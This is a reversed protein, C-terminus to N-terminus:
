GPDIAARFRALTADIGSLFAEASEVPLLAKRPNFNDYAHMAVHRFGRLEEVHALMKADLVAPRQGEIPRGLRKLLAAHSDPGAPLPEGLLNLLRRMAAEFSTYGSQMAHQFAMAVVYDPEEGMRNRYLAAAEGFHRKSSALDAGIDDWLLAMM